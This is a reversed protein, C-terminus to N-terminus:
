DVRVESIEDPNSPDELIGLVEDWDFNSEIIAIEAEPNYTALIRILDAVKM